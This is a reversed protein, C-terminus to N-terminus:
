RSGEDRRWFTSRLGPAGKDRHAGRRGKQPSSSVWLTPTWLPLGAQKRPLSLLLSPRPPPAGSATNRYSNGVCRSQRHWRKSLVANETHKVSLDSSGPFVLFLFKLFSLTFCSPLPTLHFMVHIVSSTCPNFEAM